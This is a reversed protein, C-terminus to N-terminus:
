NEYVKDIIDLTSKIICVPLVIHNACTAHQHWSVLCLTEEWYTAKRFDNSYSKNRYM